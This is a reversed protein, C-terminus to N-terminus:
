LSVVEIAGDEYIDITRGNMIMNELIGQTKMNYVTAVPRDGNRHHMEVMLKNDVYNTEAIVGRDELYYSGYTQAMNWCTYKLVEIGGLAIVAMIVMGVIFSVVYKKTGTM